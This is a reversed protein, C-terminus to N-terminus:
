ADTTEPHRQEWLSAAGILAAIESLEAIRIEASGIHDELHLKLDNEFLSFANAINGGIVVVDPKDIQIFNKLFLSLNDVFMRFAVRANSDTKMIGLLAKVDKVQKGTLDFYTKIIGRTSIYDEAVGELFPMVSLEADETIGNESRASGVGTGLTIGIAKKFGRAAGCFVEGQLFASADNQFRLDKPQMGLKEALLEKVNLGYLSEYKDFGHILSIGNEYDFPGPMAIGIKQFSNPFLVSVRNIAESWATIIDTASGHRNVSNRTVSNEVLGRKQIDILGATIHSGGIDIGLVHNNM